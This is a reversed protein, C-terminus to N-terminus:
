IEQFFIPSESSLGIKKEAKYGSKEPPCSNESAADGQSRV